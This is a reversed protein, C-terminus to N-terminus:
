QRGRIWWKNALMLAWWDTFQGQNFLGINVSKLM